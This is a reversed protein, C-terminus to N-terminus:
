DFSIIAKESNKKNKSETIDTLKIKFTLMAQSLSSFLHWLLWCLLIYLFYILKTNLKQHACHTFHLQIKQESGWQVCQLQIQIQFSILHIWKCKIEFPIITSVLWYISMRFHISFHSVFHFPTHKKKYQHLTFQVSLSPSLCM